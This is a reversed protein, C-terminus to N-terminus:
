LFYILLTCPITGASKKRTFTNMVNAYTSKKQADLMGPRNGAGKYTWEKEYRRFLVFWSFPPRGFSGNRQSHRDHSFPRFESREFLVGMKLAMGNMRMTRSQRVVLWERLPAAQFCICVIVSLPIRLFKYENKYFMLYFKKLYIVICIKNIKMIYFVSFTEKAHISAINKHTGKKHYNRM